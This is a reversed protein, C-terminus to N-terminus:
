ELLDCFRPRAALALGSLQFRARQAFSEMCRVCPPVFPRGLFLPFPQLTKLPRIRDARSIVEYLDPPVSKESWPVCTRDDVSIVNANNRKGGSSGAKTAIPDVLKSGEGRGHFTAGEVAAYESRDM